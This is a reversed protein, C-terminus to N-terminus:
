IDESHPLDDLSSLGIIDLFRETTFYRSETTGQSDVKEVRVLGKRILMALLAGAPQNWQQELKQRSIGPQYAVLSLCDIAAQNLQTEKQKGYFRDRVVNLDSALQFRYGSGEKVIEFAREHQRYSQNLDDICQDIEEVTLNRLLEVLKPIGLAQNNSTGLFLIAELISEPRLPVRDTEDVVPADLLIEAPSEEQLQDATEDLSNPYNTESDVASGTPNMAVSDIHAQQLASSYARGLEELSFGDSEDPVENPLQDSEVEEIRKLGKRGFM